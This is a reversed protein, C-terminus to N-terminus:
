PGPWSMCDAMWSRRSWPRRRIVGYRAELPESSLAAPSIAKRSPARPGEPAVAVAQAVPAVQMPSAIRM